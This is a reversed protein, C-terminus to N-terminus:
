FRSLADAKKLVRKALRRARKQRQHREMDEQRAQVKALHANKTTVSDKDLYEDVIMTGKAMNITAEIVHLNWPVHLGCVGDGKLPIIHDVHYQKRARGYATSFHNKIQARMYIRILLKKYKWRCKAWKPCARGVRKLSLHYVVLAQKELEAKLEPHLNDRM